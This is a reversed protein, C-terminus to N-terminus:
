RDHELNLLIRALRAASGTPDNGAAIDDLVSAAAEAARPHWAAIHQAIDRYLPVAVIEHDTGDPWNRVAIVRDVGGVSELDWCCVTDGDLDHAAEAAFERATSAAQSLLERVDDPVLGAHEPAGAAIEALRATARDSASTQDTM